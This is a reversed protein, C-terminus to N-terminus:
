NAIRHTYFQPTTPKQRDRTVPFLYDVMYGLADNMHDYGQSKDPQSSGEQYTQRELCEIVRRCRSSIFLNHTGM